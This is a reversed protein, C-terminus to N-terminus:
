KGVTPLFEKMFESQRIDKGAVQMVVPDNDSQQASCTTGAFIALLTTALITKVNRNM